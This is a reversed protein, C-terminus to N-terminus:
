GRHCWALYWVVLDVGALVDPPPEVLPHEQLDRPPVDLCMDHVTQGRAVSCRSRAARNGSGACWVLIYLREPWLDHLGM